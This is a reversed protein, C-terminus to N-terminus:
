RERPTLVFHGHGLAIPKDRSEQWLESRVNAVRRGRRTVIARGYTVPGQASRLYDFSVDVTRPLSACELDYLLQFVATLELMAGVVGGHLAGIDRNGVLDDKRRLLTIVEDGIQDVEIGLFRAYPVHQVVAAIDHGRGQASM